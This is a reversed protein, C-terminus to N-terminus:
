TFVCSKGWKFSSITYFIGAEFWHCNIVSLCLCPKFTFMAIDTTVSRRTLQSKNSARWRCYQALVLDVNNWRIAWYSSFLLRLCCYCWVLSPLTTHYYVQTSKPSSWSMWLFFVGPYRNATWVTSDFFVGQSRNVTWVQAILNYKNM